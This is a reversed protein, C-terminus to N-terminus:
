GPPTVHKYGCHKVVTLATRLPPVLERGYPLNIGGRRVAGDRSTIGPAIFM